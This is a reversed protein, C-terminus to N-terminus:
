ALAPLLRVPWLPRSIAFTGVSRGGAGAPCTRRGRAGLNHGKACFDTEKSRAAGLPGRM